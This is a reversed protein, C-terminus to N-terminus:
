VAARESRRSPSKARLLLELRSDSLLLARDFSFCDLLDQLQRQAHPNYGPLRGRDRVSLADARSIGYTQRNQPTRLNHVAFGHGRCRPGLFPELVDLFAVIAERDLFNFLDWFLCIDFRTGPPFCLLQSFQERLTPGDVDATFPLESFLDVVHLTCRYNAFFDVTEPLAPGTDLVTVHQDEGIREFLSALLQSPQTSTM